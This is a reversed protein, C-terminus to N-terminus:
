LLGLCHLIVANQAHMRNEAEQFVVSNKSEMVGDTTERGREAPLCHLFLTDPKGTAKMVDENVQFGVFAKERVELEEKQGMSAWVDTYIVDAGKVAEKVDNSISVTSLGVEKTKQVATPDPEYGKPCCCVFEFPIVRALELWSHVMNNGDGVYVVKLGDLAGRCEIITLADAMLQCPHNFDTLGNIVPVKSYEALELLDSHAFLRAMIIDNYGSVVRAIDKTAERVGIGIESGLCLAHGGLLFMGTEFSIRTRASPKTFIMAMSKKLLPVYDTNTRIMAKIRLAEAFVHRIEDSSLDDVQLFHRQSSPLNKSLSTTLPISAADLKKAFIVVKSHQVNRPRSCVSSSASDRSLFSTSSFLGTFGLKSGDM